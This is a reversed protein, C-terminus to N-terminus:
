EWEGITQRVIGLILGFARVNTKELVGLAALFRHWAELVEMLQHYGNEM